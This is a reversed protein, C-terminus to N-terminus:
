PSRFNTTERYRAFGRLEALPTGRLNQQPDELWLIAADETLFLQLLEFWEPEFDQGEDVVLCDFRMGPDLDAAILQEQVNQWTGNQPGQPGFIVDIGAA